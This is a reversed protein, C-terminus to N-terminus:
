QKSRQDTPYNVLRRSVVPLFRRILLLL